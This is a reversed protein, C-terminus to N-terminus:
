QGMTIQPGKEKFLRDREQTQGSLNLDMGSEKSIEDRAGQEINIGRLIRGWRTQTTRGTQNHNQNTHHEGTQTKQQTQSVNIRPM